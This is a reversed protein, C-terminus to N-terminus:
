RFARMRLRAERLLVRIAEFWVRALHLPVFRWSCTLLVFATRYVPNIPCKKSFLKKLFGAYSDASFDKYGSNEHDWRLAVAADASLKLGRKHARITYEYDSYYHPLLRPFFGGIRQLDMWRCFLGNTTLCNVEEGPQAPRFTLRREDFVMGQDLLRTGDLSYISAQVLGGGHRHLAEVGKAVFDPEIIADDNTMLVVDESAVSHAGLWDLGQQLGGAWWWGGAGTLVTTRAFAAKVAGATGDTSGDDILILRIRPYTQDALARVFRVTVDRRNHVPLLVYVTTM